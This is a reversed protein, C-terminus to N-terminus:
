IKELLSIVKMFDDISLDEARDTSKIGNSEFIEKLENKNYGMASFNNLINKRKNNFAGKVYKFFTKEDYMKEYNNDKRLTIKMFASDVKPAPEFVEKPITFLYESEGFYKVALTLVGCESNGPKATIREAVEKQVMIFIEDVYKRNDILKNIIPSTIYYPINAIVRVKEGIAEDFNLTLVDQMILNFNEKSAFKKNLVPQLDTDIEVCIVKKVKELLLATMAGDGPGIELITEDKQPMSAEMIKELYITDNMFNQGLQKKHKYSNKKEKNYKV